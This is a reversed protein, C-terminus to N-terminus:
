GASLCAASNFAVANRRAGDFQELGPVASTHM